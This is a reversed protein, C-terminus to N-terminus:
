CNTYEYYFSYYYNNQDNSKFLIGDLGTEVKCKFGCYVGVDKQNNLRNM